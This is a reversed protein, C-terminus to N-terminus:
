NAYFQTRVGETGKLVADIEASELRNKWNDINERSNRSFQQETQEVPNHAGSMEELRQRQAPGFVLGLDKFLRGFENVHDLSLEEHTRYIWEPYAERYRLATGYICNWLLIAHDIMQPEDRAAAEIQDRWPALPGDLLDPQKTFNTFDFRWNKLKLSSAFAAPHRTLVVPVMGFERHLWPAAFFALPDKYIVRDRRSRVAFALKTRLGATGRSLDHHYAQTELTRRVGDRFQDANGDHIHRYWVGPDFDRGASVMTLNFPEHVLRVRAAHILVRGVWTTGSRHSGTVLIPSRDSPFASGAAGHGRADDDHQMSTEGITRRWEGFSALLPDAAEM